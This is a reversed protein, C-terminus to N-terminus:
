VARGGTENKSDRGGRLPLAGYMRRVRHLGFGEGATCRLVNRKVSRTKHYQGQKETSGLHGALIVRERHGKLAAGFNDRYESFAFMMDIYNVGRDIGQHVVSVVTERSQGNLYETGLGIVSVDLGTKGLKQFDM